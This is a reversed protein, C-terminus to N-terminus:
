ADRVLDIFIYPPFKLEHQQITLDLKKM